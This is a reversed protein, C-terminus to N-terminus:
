GPGSRRARTLAAAVASYTDLEAAIPALVLDDAVAEIGARLRAQARRRRRRGGVRGALRALAAVLVGAVLGGLLMATPLPVIGDDGGVVGVGDGDPGLGVTPLDPLGLWAVVFIAGLWLLGALVAGALVLQLGGVVRWWLPRGGAGLDTGVVARDLADALDDARSRAAARVSAVWPPPLGSSASDAAARIASGVRSRQVPTASPLSSRLTAAVADAIVPQAPEGRPGSGDGLHLRRLPDARLRGTWRTWPLGTARVCRARWSREVAGAVVEVGAAGALATV